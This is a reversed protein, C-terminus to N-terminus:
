VYLSNRQALRLRLLSKTRRASRWGDGKWSIVLSPECWTAILRARSGVQTDEDPFERGNASQALSLRLSAVPSLSLVLRLLALDAITVHAPLRRYM